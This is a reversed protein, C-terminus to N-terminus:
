GDWTTGDPDKKNWAAEYQRFKHQHGKRSCNNKLDDIEALIDRGYVTLKANINTEGDIRTTGRIFNVVGENKSHDVGFHSWLGISKNYINVGYLDPRSTMVSEQQAPTINLQNQALINNNPRITTDLKKSIDDSRKYLDNLEPVIERERDGDQIFTKGRFYNNGNEHGIHSWRGNPNRVSIGRQWDPGTAIQIYDKISVGGSHEANGKVQLNNQILVTQPANLVLNDDTEIQLNGDKELIKSGGKMFDIGTNGKPLMCLEGDACWMTAAFNGKTDNSKPNTQYLNYKLVNYNTEGSSGLTGPDGKDGKITQRLTPNGALTDSVYKSFTANSVLNDNIYTRFANNEVLKPLLGEAFKRDSAITSIFKVSPISTGDLVNKSINNVQENTLNINELNLANNSVTSYNRLMQKLAETDAKTQAIDAKTKPDLSSQGAGM